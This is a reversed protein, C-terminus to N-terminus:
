FEIVSRAIEGRELRALAENVEELPLRLSIMEDLRLRGDLYFDVYRPMDIRFRNGGMMSGLIRKENVVVDLMPLPVQTGLPVVGVVVAAGGKRAMAVSQQVTAPTGICEFATDVGGGTLSQVAAVPDGAGADVGDTAGLKRALELKWPVRDVAVIRGAGAIRAGQLAALGIGGCGVVAVSSGPEIRATRLAAGLGTTVGCGILAARDLPMDDRIKVVANEHLLLQEAFGALHAFQVLPEGRASLRPAEGPRRATAEGGCLNPRGSLCYECAGCFVSVCAIGHDGPRVHGVEAGVEEVIGAVEHGLVTPLPAPLTGRAVHLDSHCIGCAVSRVRLERPGPAALEVPEIALPQGYARLVAARVSTEKRSM